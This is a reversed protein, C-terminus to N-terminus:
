DHQWAEKGRGSGGAEWGGGKDGADQEGKDGDEIQHVRCAGVVVQLCAGVVV